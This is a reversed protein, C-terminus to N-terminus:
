AVAAEDTALHDTVIIPIGDFDTPLEAEKGTPTTATRSERLQSQLEVDMVILNPRHSAPFKAMARSLLADTLKHGNTSDLNAIRGLDWKTPYQVAYWGGLDALWAVYGHGQLDTQIWVKQEPDYEFKVRGENGAVVALGKPDTHVLWVSRGGAGGASVVMGGALTAVTARNPFPDLNGNITLSLASSSDSGSLSDDGGYSGGLIAAELGAFMARAQDEVESAMYAAPGGKYGSALAVDRTFHGDLYACEVVVQESGGATNKVGTNIGRFHATPAEIKRVYKHTTGGQSARIAALRALLPAEQLLESVEFANNGDSLQVIGELTDTKKMTM